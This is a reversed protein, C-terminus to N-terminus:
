VGGFILWLMCVGAVFLPKGSMSGFLELQDGLDKYDYDRNIIAISVLTLLSCASLTYVALANLFMM